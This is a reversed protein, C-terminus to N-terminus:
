KEKNKNIMYIDMYYEMDPDYIYGLSILTNIVAIVVDIDKKMRWKVEQQIALEDDSGIADDLTVVDVTFDYDSDTLKTSLIKQIEPYIPETTIYKFMERDRTITTFTIEIHKDIQSIAIFPIGSSFGIPDDYSVNKVTITYLRRYLDQYDEYTNLHHLRHIGYDRHLKNRWFDINGCIKNNLRHNSQCLALIEPLDMNLVMYMLVDGPLTEM